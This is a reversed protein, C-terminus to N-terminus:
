PHQEELSFHPILSAGKSIGATPLIQARCKDRIFDKFLFFFTFFHVCLKMWGIHLSCTFLM